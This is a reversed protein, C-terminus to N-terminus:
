GVSQIVRIRALNELADDCKGKPEQDPKENGLEWFVVCEKGGFFGLKNQPYDVLVAPVSNGVWDSPFLDLEV